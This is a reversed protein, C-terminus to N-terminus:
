ICTYQIIQTNNQIDIMIYHKNVIVVKYNNTFVIHDISDTSTHIFPTHYYHRKKTNKLSRYILKFYFDM